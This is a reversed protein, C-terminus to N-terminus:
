GGVTEDVVDVVQDVRGLEAIEVLDDPPSARIEVARVDDRLYVGGNGTVAQADQRMEERTPERSQLGDKGLDHPELPCPPEQDVLILLVKCPHAEDDVEEDTFEGTGRWNQQWSPGM